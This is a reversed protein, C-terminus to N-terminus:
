PKNLSSLLSPKIIRCRSVNCRRLLRELQCVFLRTCENSSLPTPPHLSLNCCIFLFIETMQDGPWHSASRHGASAYLRDLEPYFLPVLTPPGTSRVMVGVKRVTTQFPAGVRVLVEQEGM